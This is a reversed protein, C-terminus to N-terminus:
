AIISSYLFEYLTLTAVFMALQFGLMKAIEATEVMEAMGGKISDQCNPGLNKILYPMLM